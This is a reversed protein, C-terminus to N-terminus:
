EPINDGFIASLQESSMMWLKHYADPTNAIKVPRRGHKYIIELQEPTMMWLKHLIDPTLVEVKESNEATLINTAMTLRELLTM